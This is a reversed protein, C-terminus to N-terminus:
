NREASQTEGRPEATRIRRPLLLRAIPVALVAGLPVAALYLWLAEFTGSLVAPAITRAPNLSSGTLPGIV